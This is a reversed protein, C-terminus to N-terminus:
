SCFVLLAETLSFVFVGRWLISMPATPHNLDAIHERNLKSFLEYHTLNRITSTTRSFLAPRWGFHRSPLFTFRISTTSTSIATTPSSTLSSTAADLSTPILSAVWPVLILLWLPTTSTSMLMEFFNQIFINKQSFKFLYILYMVTTPISKNNIKM